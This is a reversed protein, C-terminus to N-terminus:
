WKENSRCAILNMWESPVFNFSIPEREGSSNYRFFSFGFRGILSILDATCYGFHAFHKESVEFYIYDTRGLSQAGGEIVFKEYGEVDIKLLRIRGGITSLVEDLTMLPVKIGDKDVIRNMDDFRENSIMVTGSRNGLACNLLTINSVRNLRVNSKLYRFTRPNAEVSIVKGSRGVLAAAALSIFGVNAGVDVVLDGPRLCSRLFREDEKCANVDNWAIKSQNTPFIKIRYLGRDIILLSGIGTRHICRLLLGRLPAKEHRLIYALQGFFAM